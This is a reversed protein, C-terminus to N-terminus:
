MLSGAAMGVGSASLASTSQSFSGSDRESLAMMLPTSFGMTSATASFGSAMVLLLMKSENCNRSFHAGMEGTEEESTGLLEKEEEIIAPVGGELSGRGGSGPAGAQRIFSGTESSNLSDLYM